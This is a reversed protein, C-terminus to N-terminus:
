LGINIKRVQERKIENLILNGPTQNSNCNSATTTTAVTEMCFVYKLEYM